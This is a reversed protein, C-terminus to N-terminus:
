VLQEPCVPVPIMQQSKLYNIVAQSYSDSGDYRTALGLLCSSVLIPRM